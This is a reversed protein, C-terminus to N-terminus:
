QKTIVEKLFKQVREDYQHRLRRIAEQRVEPKQHTRAVNILLPVAQESQGRSLANVAQLQTETDAAANNIAENLAEVCRQCGLRGLRAIAENKLRRDTEGRSLKILFNAAGEVDESRAIASIIEAKVEPTSVASYLNQLTPLATAGEGRGIAVAAERRLEVSERENGVLDALLTQTGPLRGLRAVAHRRLQLDSESRVIQTLFDIAQKDETRAAASIIQEKVQRNAVARYLNHLTSVAAPSRGKGIASAAEARLEDPERENRVLSALFNITEPLYGLRGVAHKRLQHDSDSEVIKTLFGAAAEKPETRAAASIIQEKVERATVSRYLSQL